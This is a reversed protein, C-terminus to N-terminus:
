LSYIVLNFHLILSVIGNVNIVFVMYFPLAFSIMLLIPLYLLKIYRWCINFLIDIPPGFIPMEKLQLILNLWGGLLVFAGLQWRSEDICHCHREFNSTFVISGTFIFLQLVNEKDRIYQLRRQILQMIEFILHLGALTIIIIAGGFQYATSFHIYYTRDRYM